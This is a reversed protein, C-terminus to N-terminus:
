PQTNPPSPLPMWHTVHMNKLNDTFGHLKGYSCNWWYGSIGLSNIEEVWCLYRGAELPLRDKVSIPNLTNAEAGAIFGHECATRVNNIAAKGFIKDTYATAAQKIESENM